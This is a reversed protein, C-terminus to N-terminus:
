RTTVDAKEYIKAGKIQRAGQNLKVFQNLAKQLVDMTFYPRLAELDLEDRSTIEGTWVYRLSSRAGTMEGASAAVSAGRAQAAQGFFQADNDNQIAKDMVADAQSKQGKAELAAAEGALRDAEAQRDRELQARREREKKEQALLFDRQREKVRKRAADLTELTERFFDDVVRCLTLYPAKDRTRGEDLAKRCVAIQKELDTIKDSTDQDEIIDPVRDAAEILKAARELAKRNNEELLEKMLEPDSPPNNHGIMSTQQAQM